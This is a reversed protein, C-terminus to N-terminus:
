EIEDCSGCLNELMRRLHYFRQLLEFPSYESFIWFLLSVVKLCPMFTATSLERIIINSASVSEFNMSSFYTVKQVQNDPTLKRRIEM